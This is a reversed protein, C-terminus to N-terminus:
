LEGAMRPSVLGADAPDSPLPQLEGAGPGYGHTFLLGPHDKDMQRLVDWSSANVKDNVGRVYARIANRIGQGFSGTQTAKTAVTTKPHADTMRAALMTGLEKSGADATSATETVPPDAYKFMAAMAVRAVDRDFKLANGRRTARYQAYNDLLDLAHEPDDRIAELMLIEAAKSVEQGRPRRDGAQKVDERMDQIMQRFMKGLQNIKEQTEKDKLQMKPSGDKGIKPPNVPEVETLKASKTASQQVSKGLATIGDAFATISQHATAGSKRHASDFQSVVLAMYDRVAAGGRPDSHLITKELTEADTAATQTTRQLEDVLGGLGNEVENENLRWPVLVAVWQEKPPKPPEGRAPTEKPTYWRRAFFWAVAAGFLTGLLALLVYILEPPLGYEQHITELTVTPKGPVEVIRKQKPFLMMLLVLLAVFTMALAAIIEARRRLDRTEQAVAARALNRKSIRASSSDPAAARRIIKRQPLM